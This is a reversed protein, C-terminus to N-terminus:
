VWDQAMHILYMNNWVVDKLIWKFVVNGKVGLDELIGERNRGFHKLMKQAIEHSSCAGDTKNEKTKIIRITNPSSYINHFENLLNKCRWKANETAGSKRKLIWNIEKITPKGKCSPEYFQPQSYKLRETQLRWFFSLLNQAPESYIYICVYMRVYMCVYYMCVYTCVYIYVCVYMCVYMICVYMIVSTFRSEVDECNCAQKIASKRLHKFSETEQKQKRSWSM